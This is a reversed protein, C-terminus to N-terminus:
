VDWSNSSVMGMSGQSPRLREMGLYYTRRSVEFIEIEEISIISDVLTDIGASKGGGRADLTRGELPDGFV